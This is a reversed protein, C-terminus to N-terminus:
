ILRRWRHCDRGGGLRTRGKAKCEELLRVMREVVEPRDKWLNRQESPDTRLNYLQGKVLPDTEVPANKDAPSFGGSGVAPILKWDGARLCVVGRSSLHLVGPRPTEFKEGGKFLPWLSYSDEAGQDPLPTETIAACTATLDTLCITEGCSTGPRIHGPWRAIFPMRHGGEWADGKMGRYIGASAHGYKVVDQPFWMPGNDSTFIVLTNEKLGQQELTALIRGVGADVNAAFDGYMGISTKGQFEKSPLWPTHPGTFAVYLLFPKADRKQKKIETEAEQVFLPLVEELKLDPAIEGARWFEGQTLAWGPSHHEAIKLTPATLVKDQRLLFYPPIDTSASIGLFTDFGRDIPGSRFPQAYDYKTGQEYGLHWKGVMATRYGAQKLLAPLTVRGNEIVPGDTIRLRGNDSGRWPYRGTLLGYRSPICVSGAAHADTFRMGERALRDINPTPIKSQPNFCGPDGIGMDDALIIVINPREAANIAATLGCCLMVGAALWALRSQGRQWMSSRRNSKM